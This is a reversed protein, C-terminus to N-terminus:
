DYMYMCVYMCLYFLMHAPYVCVVPIIIVCVIFVAAPIGRHERLQAAAAPGPAAAVPAAAAATTASMILLIYLLHLYVFCFFINFFYTHIHSLFFCVLVCVVCIQNVVVANKPKQTRKKKKKQM